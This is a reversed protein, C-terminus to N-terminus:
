KSLLYAITLASNVSAYLGYARYILSCWSKQVDSLASGALNAVICNSVPDSINRVVGFPVKMYDAVVAVFADDMEQAAYKSHNGSTNAVEFTNTSLIPKKDCLNNLKPHLALEPDISDNLLDSLKIQSIDYHRTVEHRILKEYIKELENNNLPVKTFFKSLQSTIQPKWKSTYCSNNIKIGKYVANEFNIGHGKNLECLAQNTINVTGIVDEIVTGGATGSTIILSPSTEHIIKEILVTTPVQNIECNFKKAVTDDNINTILGDTSPHMDSKYLLLTKGNSLQFIAYRGWAELKKSPLVAGKLEVAHMFDQYGSKYLRWNTNNFANSDAERYKISSNNSFFVHNLAAFEANTWVIAVYDAKPLKAVSSSEESAVFKPNGIGINSFDIAPLNPLSTHSDFNDVSDSQSFSLIHRTKIYM